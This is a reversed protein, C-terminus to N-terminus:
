WNYRGNYMFDEDEPRVIYGRMHPPIDTYGDMYNRMNPMNYSGQGGARGGRMRPGRRFNMERSQDGEREEAKNFCKVLKAALKEIDEAMDRAVNFDEDFFEYIKM